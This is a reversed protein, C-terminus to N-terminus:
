VANQDNTRVLIKKCCLFLFLALQFVVQFKGGLGIIGGISGLLGANPFDPVLKEVTIIDEKYLALRWYNKSKLMQQTEIAYNTEKCASKCDCIYNALKNMKTIYNTMCSKRCDLNSINSHCQFMSSSVVKLDHPLFKKWFDVVDHCEQLMYNFTCTERCSDQTYSDSFMNYDKKGDICQSTYPYPLRSIRKEKIYIDYTGKELKASGHYTSFYAIVKKHIFDSVSEFILVMKDNETTNASFYLDQYGAMSGDENFVHCGNGLYKGEKWDGEGYMSKYYLKGVKVDRNQCKSKFSLSEDKYCLFTHELASQLCLTVVPLKGEVGEITQTETKVGYALYRVSIDYIRRSTFYIIFLM